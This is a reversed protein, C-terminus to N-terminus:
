IDVYAQAGAEGTCHHAYYRGAFNFIYHLFGIDSDALDFMWFIDALRAGVQKASCAIEGEVVELAGVCLEGVAHVLLAHVAQQICASAVIAGKLLDGAVFLKRQEAFGYARATNTPM